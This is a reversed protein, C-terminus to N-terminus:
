WLQSNVNNIEKYKYSLWAEDENPNWGQYIKNQIARVQSRSVDYKKALTRDSVTCPLSTLYNYIDDALLWLSKIAMHHEWPMRNKMYEIQATRTNNSPLKGKMIRSMKDRAEQTGKAKKQIESMRQKTEESHPTGSLGGIASNWGIYMSSRLKFEIYKCYDLSGIVIEKILLQDGYKRFARHIINDSKKSASKHELFRIKIDKVTIGIYGETAIDKHHELHIWYVSCKM